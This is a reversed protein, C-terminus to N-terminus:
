DTMTIRFCFEGIEVECGIDAAFARLKLISPLQYRRLPIRLSLAKPPSLSPPNRPFYAFM